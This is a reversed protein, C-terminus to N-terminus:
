PGIVFWGRPDRNFFYIYHTHIIRAVIKTPMSNSFGLTCQWGRDMRLVGKGFSEAHLKKEIM